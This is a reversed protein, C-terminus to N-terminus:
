VKGVEVDYGVSMRDALPRPVATTAPPFQWDDRSFQLHRPVPGLAGVAAPLAQSFLANWAVAPERGGYRPGGAAAM